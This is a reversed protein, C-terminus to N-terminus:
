AWILWGLFLGFGFMLGVILLIRNVILAAAVAGYGNM